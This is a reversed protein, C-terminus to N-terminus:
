CCCVSISLNSAPNAYYNVNGNTTTLSISGSSSANSVTLQVNGNVDSSTIARFSLVSIYTNGNTEQTTINGVSDGRVTIQGNTTELSIDNVSGPVDATIAGNLGSVSVTRSLIESPIYINAIANIGWYQPTGLKIEYTGNAASVDITAFAKVFFSSTVNLDARLTNDPSPLINIACNGATITLTYNAQPNYTDSNASATSSPSLTFPEFFSSYVASALVVGASVVLLALAIVKLTLMLREPQGM